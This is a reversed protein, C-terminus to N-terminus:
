IWLTSFLRAPFETGYWDTLHHGSTEGKASSQMIRKFPLLHEVDLKFHRYSMWLDLGICEPLHHFSFTYPQNVLFSKNWDNLLNWSMFVQKENGTYRCQKFRSFPLEKHDLNELALKILILIHFSISLSIKKNSSLQQKNESTFILINLKM